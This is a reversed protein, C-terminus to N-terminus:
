ESTKKGKGKECEREAIKEKVAKLEEDSLNNIANIIDDSTNLDEKVVKIEVNEKIKDEVKHKLEENLVKGKEVADEGKEVLDKFIEKSKDISEAVAGVGALLINKLTIEIEDNGM